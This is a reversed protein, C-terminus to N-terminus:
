DERAAIPEINMLVQLSITQKIIIILCGNVFM